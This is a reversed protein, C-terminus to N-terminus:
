KTLEYRNRARQALAVMHRKAFADLSMQLLPIHGHREVDAGGAARLVRFARLRGGLARDALLFPLIDWRAALGPRRQGRKLLAM